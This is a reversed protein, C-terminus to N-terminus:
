FGISSRLLDVFFRPMEFSKRIMIVISPVFLTCFPMLYIDNFPYLGIRVENWKQALCDTKDSRCSGTHCCRQQMWAGKKMASRGRECQLIPALDIPAYNPTAVIYACLAVTEADTSGLKNLMFTPLLVFKFFMRLNEFSQM